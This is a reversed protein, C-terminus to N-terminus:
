EIERLAAVLDKVSANLFNEVKSAIVVYERIEGVRSTKKESKKVVKFEQLLCGTPCPKYYFKYLGAVENTKVLVVKYEVFAGNSQYLIPEIVKNKEVGTKRDIPTVEHTSYPVARNIDVIEIILDTNMLAPIKSYDTSQANVISTNILGRDRVNLGAKLLEKEVSSYFVRDEQSRVSNSTANDNTNPVRLVVSPSPNLKLLQKLSTKTIKEDDYSPYFIKYTSRCSVLISVLTLVCFFKKIM